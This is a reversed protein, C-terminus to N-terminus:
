NPPSQDSHLPCRVPLRGYDIPYLKVRPCTATALLGTDVCLLADKVATPRQFGASTNRGQLLAMMRGWIPACASGGYRYAGTLQRAPNDFGIWIATSLVPTYGVFWADTSHQTTGTKGAAPGSYYKRVSSATGSDVVTELANSVLFATTSDLVRATDVRGTYLVRRNRDEIKVICYPTIHLGGNAFVSIASAMELPSVEGTGLALSPYAPLNSQIGCRHAFAAVSDPATLELMAHAAVLNLSHQIGYRMPVTRGSYIDDDNMPRWETASGSDVVLPTDPIPTGLTYGKEILSGYLFPKFSSGPQRQIQMARNLGRAESSENGGVMALIRGDRPDLTVMGIQAQQMGKPFQRWQAEVSKEAARQVSEDFTTTIRLEESGLSKGLQRLIESAEKRIYEAFHRGTNERPTLGLSQKRLRQFERDGLRGVEVLNHLVENRRKLARDPHKVPEFASPAQVLGVIMASEGITLKDPTKNFYEEAAAWIGYAGRGFYVTNLYLLLIQDKSYKKELEKALDIEALKRTITKEQTLFLNRALQMTLTSGGQTKGTLTQWLARGLGKLSVGDHNYFDRDETAILAELLYKPVSGTSHLEVRHQEGFYDIVKGSPTVAYSSYKLNIPPVDQAAAEFCALLLIGTSILRLLGSHVSPSLLMTDDDSIYGCCSFADLCFDAAM